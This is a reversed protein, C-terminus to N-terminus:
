DRDAAAPIQVPIHKAVVPPKCQSASCAMYTIQVEEELVNNGHPLKVPLRLTVVGVPYVLLEKPGFEPVEAKVSEILTGTANLLSDYTLELLTPRGLGEVGTVPIDKSYLHYGDPPTFTASISYSGGSDQQLYIAVDVFNETFSALFVGEKQSPTCSVLTGTLSLIWFAAVYGRLLIM